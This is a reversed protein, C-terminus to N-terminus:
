ADFIEELAQVFAAADAFRNYLPVPAARIVDPERWDTEFGAADLKAKVQRGPIRDSTVRLSLQCGGGPPTVMAIHESLRQQLQERLFGTLARSKTTLVQMGGARQFLDLSSRIAALSIIPPNSLQWGEVTPIARFETKMEFRTSKDHGWWGALRPLDIRSAHRDHVFCGGVSGPGSNLYKYTCWVAFDINWDHLSLEINGAAHALDVGSTIGWRQCIAAIRPLDFVQGTYYQVGPLLVLALEQHYDDILQCIDDTRLCEEGERPDVVIMVDAPDFGRARIHSEVAIYDSPFAGAEILIRIRRGQPRWFTTLMLHLNVTLSNMVVVETPLAGVIDAMPVTLFEHYPMWPFEGTFHARVGLSRWADLEREIFGPTQKPQLGLSNGVLYVIERGTEDQPIFFEDRFGGLPDADDLETALMKIAATDM